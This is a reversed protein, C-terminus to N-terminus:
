EACYAKEPVDKRCLRALWAFAAIEPHLSTLTKTKIAHAPNFSAELVLVFSGAGAENVTARASCALCM